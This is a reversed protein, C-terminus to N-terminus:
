GAEGGCPKTATCDPSPSNSTGSHASLILVISVFFVVCFIMLVASPRNATTCIAGFPVSCITM